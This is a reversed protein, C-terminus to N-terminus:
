TAPISHERVTQTNGRVREITDWRIGDFYELGYDRIEWDASSYVLIQEILSPTALGIQLSAPLAPTTDTERANAWSYEPGLGTNRDGDVARLPNYGSFTSTASANAKALVNKSGCALATPPGFRRYDYAATNLQDLLWESLLGSERQDVTILNTLRHPGNRGNAFLGDGSFRLTVQNAGVLVKRTQAANAVVSGTSDVLDGAIMAEGSFDFELSVQIELASYNRPDLDSPVATEAGVGTVAINRRGIQVTDNDAREFPQGSADIGSIFWSVEANGPANPM